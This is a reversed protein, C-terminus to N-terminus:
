KLRQVSFYEDTKWKIGEPQAKARFHWVREWATTPCARVNRLVLEFFKNQPDSGGSSSMFFKQRDRLAQFQRQSGGKATVGIKGAV